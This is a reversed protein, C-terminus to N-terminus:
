RSRDNRIGLAFGVVAVLFYGLWHPWGLLLTGSMVLAGGIFCRILRRIAREIRIVRSTLDIHNM